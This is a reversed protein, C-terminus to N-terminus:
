SERVVKMKGDDQRHSAIKLRKYCVVPMKCPKKPDMSREGKM